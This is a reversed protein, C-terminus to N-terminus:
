DRIGFHKFTPYLKYRLHVGQMMMSIKRIDNQNNTSPGSETVWQVFNPAAFTEIVAKRDAYVRKSAEVGCIMKRKAHWCKWIDLWRIFQLRQLCERTRQHKGHFYRVDLVLIIIM